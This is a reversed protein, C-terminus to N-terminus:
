SHLSGVETCHMQLYHKVTTEVQKEIQGRHYSRPPYEHNFRNKDKVYFAVKYQQTKMESRYVRDRSLSYPAGPEPSGLFTFALLFLVPVFQLLSAIGPPSQNRQQQTDRNHAQPYYQRRRVNGFHTRYVRGNPHMPFGGGFFMNFIEQPDIEDAYYQPGQAAAAQARDEYGYQDYNARKEPDSLCSFARSVGKFAEEAGPASNKDPHLKLALKKYARKIDDDSSDKSIALIDYFDKSRRIRQVM